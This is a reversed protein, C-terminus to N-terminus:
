WPISGPRGDRCAGPSILPKCPPVPIPLGSLQEPLMTYPVHAEAVGARPPNVLHPVSNELSLVAIGLLVTLDTAPLWRVEGIQHRMLNLLHVLSHLRSRNEPTGDTPKYHRPSVVLIGGVVLHHEICPPTPACM